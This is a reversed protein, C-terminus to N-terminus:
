DLLLKQMHLKRGKMRKDIKQFMCCTLPGTFLSYLHSPLAVFFNRKITSSSKFILHYISTHVPFLTSFMVPFLMLGHTRCKQCKFVFQVSTHLLLKYGAKIVKRAYCSVLISAQRTVAEGMELIM